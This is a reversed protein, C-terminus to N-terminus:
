NNKLRAVILVQSFREPLDRFILNHARLLYQTSQPLVQLCLHPVKLRTHLGKLIPQVLCLQCYLFATATQMVEWGLFVLKVFELYLIGSQIYPQWLLVFCLYCCVSTFM